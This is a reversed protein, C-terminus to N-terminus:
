REHLLPAEDKMADLVHLVPSLVEYEVEILGLAEEAIHASTAAVAAVAHGKYLVKDAAMVNNSLLKVNVAMEGLNAMRDEAVPFDKVTIVAKVGPLAEAKATNISKIRAHAHPSRLVKGHLMGTLRMDGGYVARGTVKDAGDPRIPRTGIVKYEATAEAM